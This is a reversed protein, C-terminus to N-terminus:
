CSPRVEIFRENASRSRSGAFSRYEVLISAFNWGQMKRLCGILTGTEFIGSTDLVLVPYNRADLLIELSDKVISELVSFSNIEHPSLFLHHSLSGGGGARSAAPWRREIGFHHMQVNSRNCYETLQKSPAEISLVVMTKIRLTDLFAFSHPNGSPDGSRYIYPCVPAFAPPTHLVPLEFVPRDSSQSSM